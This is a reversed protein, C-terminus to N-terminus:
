RPDLYIAIASAAIAIYYSYIAIYKATYIAIAITAVITM